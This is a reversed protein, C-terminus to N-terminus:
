LRRFSSLRGAKFILILIWTKGVMIFDVVVEAM